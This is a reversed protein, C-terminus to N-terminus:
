GAFGMLARMESRYRFILIGFCIEAVANCLGALGSFIGSMGMLSLSGLIEFVALIFLLVAVFTSVRDSAVGSNVTGRVTNLTQIQKAQFLIGVVFILLFVVGALIFIPGAISLAERSSGSASILSAMLAYSAIMLILCLVAALCIFVLAIVSMVKLLTLGGSATQWNGRRTSVYLMWIGAAVLATPIMSILAGGVNGSRGYSQIADQIQGFQSTDIGNQELVSMMQEFTQPLMKSATISGLVNLVTGVTVAIAAILMTTSGALKRVVDLASSSGLPRGYNGPQAYAPQYAPTVPQQVPQQVTQQAPQELPNGCEPCFKGEPVYAGCKRCIM